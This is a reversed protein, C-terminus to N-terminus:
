KDRRVLWPREGAPLLLLEGDVTDPSVYSQHLRDALERSIPGCLQEWHRWNTRVWVQWLQRDPEISGPNHALNPDLSMTWRKPFLVVLALILMLCFLCVWFTLVLFVM